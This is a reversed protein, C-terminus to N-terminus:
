KTIRKVGEPPIYAALYTQYLMLLYNRLRMITWLTPIVYKAFDVIRNSGINHYWIKFMKKILLRIYQNIADVFNIEADKTSNFGIVHLLLMDDWAVAQKYLHPLRINITEPFINLSIGDQKLAQTAMTLGIQDGLDDCLWDTAQLTDCVEQAIQSCRLWEAFLVDTDGSYFVVGSNFQPHIEKQATVSLDPSEIGLSAMVSDMRESPIPIAAKHYVTHWYQEPIDNAKGIPAACFMPKNGINEYVQTLKELRQMLIIDTDLLLLANHQRPIQLGRLKNWYNKGGISLKNISLKDHFSYLVHYDDMVRKLLPPPEGIVAVHLPYHPNNTGMHHVFSAILM